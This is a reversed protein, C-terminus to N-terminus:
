AKDRRPQEMGESYGVSRPATVLVNITPTTEAKTTAPIGGAPARPINRDRM